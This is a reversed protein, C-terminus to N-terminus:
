SPTSGRSRRSPRAFATLIIPEQEYGIEGRFPVGGLRHEDSAGLAERGNPVAGPAQGRYHDGAPLRKNRTDPKERRRVKSRAYAFMYRVRSGSELPSDPCL